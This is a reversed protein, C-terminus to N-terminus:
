KFKHWFKKKPSNLKGYKNYRPQKKKKHMGENFYHYTIKILVMLIIGSLFAIFVILQGDNNM